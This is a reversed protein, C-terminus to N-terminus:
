SSCYPQCSVAPKTAKWRDNSRTVVSYICRSTGRVGGIVRMQLAVRSIQVLVSYIIGQVSTVNEHCAIWISLMDVIRIRMAFIQLTLRLNLLAVHLRRHHQRRATKYPYGKM